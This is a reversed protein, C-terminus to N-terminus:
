VFDGIVINIIFNVIVLIFLIFVFISLIIRLSLFFKPNKYYFLFGFSIVLLITSSFVAWSIGLLASKGMDYISYIDDIRPHLALIPKGFLLISDEFNTFATALESSSPCTELHPQIAQLLGLRIMGFGNIVQIAQDVVFDIGSVKEESIDVGDTVEPHAWILFFSTIFLICLLSMTISKVMKMNVNPTEDGSISIKAPKFHKIIVIVNILLVSFLGLVGLILPM